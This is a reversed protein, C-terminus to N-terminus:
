AVNWVYFARRTAQWKLRQPSRLGTREKARQATPSARRERVGRARM